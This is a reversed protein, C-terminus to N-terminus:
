RLRNIITEIKKTEFFKILRLSAKSLRSKPKKVLESLSTVFQDAQQITEKQQNNDETAALNCALLWAFQRAKVISFSAVQEDKEKGIQDLWHLLPSVKSLKVQMENILEQLIDNILMFDNKLTHIKEGPAFKAAAIGLDHNIHANMGMILHQMISLDQNKAKFSSAWCQCTQGKQKYEYYADLYFNAFLVDFAEMRENDEFRQAKIEKQIQATTRRYVYAFIGLYNNEAISAEIIHDLAALVEDITEPRKKM